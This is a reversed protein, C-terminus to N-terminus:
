VLLDALEFCHYRAYSNRGQKLVEWNLSRAANLVASDKLVAAMNRVDDMQISVCKVGAQVASRRYIPHYYSAFGYKRKFATEIPYVKQLEDEDVNVFAWTKKPNDLYFGTVLLEMWHINCVALRNNDGTSPRATVCWWERETMQPAPICEQVYHRFLDVIVKFDARQKLLEFQARYKTRQVFDDPRTFGQRFLGPDSRWNDLALETFKPKVQKKLAM